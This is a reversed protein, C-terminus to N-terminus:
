PAAPESSENQPGRPGPRRPGRGEAKEKELFEGAAQRETANLRKDGDKDFQKVLTTDERVGGPGPGRRDGDPPRDPFQARLHIASCVLAALIIITELRRLPKLM